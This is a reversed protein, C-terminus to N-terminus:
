APEPIADQHGVHTDLRHHRRQVRMIAPRPMACNLVFEMFVFMKLSAKANRPFPKTKRRGKESKRTSAIKRPDQSGSSALVARPRKTSDTPTLERALRKAPMSSSRTVSNAYTNQASQAPTAPRTATELM